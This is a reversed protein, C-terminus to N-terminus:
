RFFGGGRGGRRRAQVFQIGFLGTVAWAVGSLFCFFQVSKWNRCDGGIGPNLSFFPGCAIEKVIIGFTVWWGISFAFDALWPIKHAMSPVLWIVALIVSLSAWVMAFIFGPVPWTNNLAFPHM